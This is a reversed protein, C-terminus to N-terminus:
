LPWPLSFVLYYGIQHLMFFAAAVVYAHSKKLNWGDYIMLLFLIAYILAYQVHQTTLQSWNTWNYGIRGITPGLFVLASAIIYRMHKAVNKKHYIALLYLSVLVFSDAVPFFLDKKNESHFIVFVRPLISLILLPFIIYSLQGILRHVRYRRHKVLVPQVILMLIWTMAIIAHLHDYLKIKSSFRPM